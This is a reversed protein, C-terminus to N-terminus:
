LGLAPRLHTCGPGPFRQSSGPIFVPVWALVTPSPERLAVVSAFLIESFLIGVFLGAAVFRMRIKSCVAGRGPARNRAKLVNASLLM